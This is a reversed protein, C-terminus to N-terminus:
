PRHEGQKVAVLEAEPAAISYPELLQVDNVISAQITQVLAAECDERRYRKSPMLETVRPPTWELSSGLGDLVGSFQFVKESSRPEAVPAPESTELVAVPEKDWYLCSAGRVFARAAPVPISLEAAGEAPGPTAAHHPSEFYFTEAAQALSSALASPHGSVPRAQQQLGILVGLDALALPRNEDPLPWSVAHDMGPQFALYVGEAQEPEAERVQSALGVIHLSLRGGFKLNSANDRMEHVLKALRRLAQQQRAEPEHSQWPGGLEALELTWLSVMVPAQHATTALPGEGSTHPAAAALWKRWAPVIERVFEQHLVEEVTAGAGSCRVAPWVNELWVQPVFPAVRDHIRALRAYFRQHTSPQPCVLGATQEPDSPGGSASHGGGASSLWWSDGFAEESSTGDGFFFALDDPNTLNTTHRVRGPGDLVQDQGGLGVFPNSAHALSGSGRVGHEFPELGTLLTALQVLSDSQPGLVPRFATLSKRWSDDAGEALFRHATLSDLDKLVLVIRLEARASRPHQQASEVASTLTERLFVAFLAAVCLVLRMLGALPSRAESVFRLIVVFGAGVLLATAGAVLFMQAGMAGDGSWPLGTGPQWRHDESAWMFILYSSLVIIAVLRQILPRKAPLLCRGALIFLYSVPVIALFASLYTALVFLSGLDKAPDPVPSARVVDLATLGLAAVLLFGAWQLVFRWDALFFGMVSTQSSRRSIM